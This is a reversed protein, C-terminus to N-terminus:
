CGLFIPDFQRERNRKALRESYERKAAEMRRVDELSVKCIKCFPLETGWSPFFVHDCSQQRKGCEDCVSPICDGVMWEKGCVHCRAVHHGYPM